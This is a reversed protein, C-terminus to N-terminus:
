VPRHTELWTQIHPLIPINRQIMSDVLSRVSSWRNLSMYAELLISYSKENFPIGYLQMEKMRIFLTSYDKDYWAKGLKKRYVEGMLEDYIASQTPRALFVQKPISLLLTQRM